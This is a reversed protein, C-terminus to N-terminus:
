PPPPTVAKVVAGRSSFSTDFTVADQYSANESYSTQFFPGTITYAGDFDFIVEAAPTASLSLDLLDTTAKLRMGSISIEVSKEGPVDLLAQIGDDSDDTVNVSSNNVTLSKTRATAVVTGGVSVTVKRGITDGSM